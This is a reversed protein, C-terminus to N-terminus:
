SKKESEIDSEAHKIRTELDKKISSVTVKLRTNTGSLKGLLDADSRASAGRIGSSSLLHNWGFQNPIKSLEDLLGQAVCAKTQPSDLKSFLEEVRKNWDVLADVKQEAEGAAKTSSPVTKSSIDSGIRDLKNLLDDVRGFVGKRKEINVRDCYQTKTRFLVELNASEALSAVDRTLHAVSERFDGYGSLFVAGACGVVRLKTILSGTEFIVEIQVEDGLLFKAREEFFPLLQNKLKERADATHYRDINLHTYAECLIEKSIYRAM